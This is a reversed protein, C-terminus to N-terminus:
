RRQFEPSMLALTLGQETSEARSVALRTREGAMPGLAADLFSAPTLDRSMRRSVLNAWELRKMVADPGSWSAADDPWGQPSPASYPRQGLSDYLARMDRGGAAEVGVARSASILLEDPTKLKHLEPSWAADLRIVASALAALDGETDLFVRELRAIAAEPPQDAVFHRVLKTAVHRATSPHVALDALVAAAQEGGAEAYRKGMVMRAGPEHLIPQFVTNARSQPDQNRLDLTWGTLAKALEIVDGQSYGAHVGVTHLELVERALNENLGAGRRKAMTTSPGVSRYADLYVLMTPHFTSKALLTGFRGFVHPRVAEREFSGVISIMQANRASVSFHNAWFRAWREAFGDPTTTAFKLRAAIEAQLVGRIGNATMNRMERVAEPDVPEVAERRRRQQYIKAWEAYTEGRGRLSPDTYAAADPRVQSLLYGRADSAAAAIEGPRAGMGFRATAIAGQLKSM